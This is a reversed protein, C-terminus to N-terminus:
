GPPLPLAYAAGTLRIEGDIVSYSLVQPRAADLRGQIVLGPNIWHEGMGPFDPGLRRYGEAIAVGRDHYRVTAARAEEVFSAAKRQATEQGAAEPQQASVAPGPMLFSLSAVAALRASRRREPRSTARRM